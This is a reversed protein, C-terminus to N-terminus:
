HNHACLAQPVRCIRIESYGHKSIWLVGRPYKDSGFIRHTILRIALVTPDVKSNVLVECLHKPLWFRRYDIHCESLDQAGDRLDSRRLSQLPGSEDM